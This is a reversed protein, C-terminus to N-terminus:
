EFIMYAAFMRRCVVVIWAVVGGFLGLRGCGVRITVSAIAGKATGLGQLIVHLGFVRGQVHINSGIPTLLLLFVLFFHVLADVTGNATPFHGIQFIMPVLQHRRRTTIRVVFLLRPGTRITGLCKPFLPRLQLVFVKTPLPRM